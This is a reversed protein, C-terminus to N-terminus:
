TPDGAGSPPATSARIVLTTPLVIEAPEHGTDGQVSALLMEAAKYGKEMQDQRVTTLAPEIWAAIPVDDFGVVSLDKPVHLGLARAANLAGFALRDTMVLLATPKQDRTLSLRQWRQDRL